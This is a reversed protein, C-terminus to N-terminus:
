AHHVPDDCGLTTPTVTAARPRVDSADPVFFGCGGSMM